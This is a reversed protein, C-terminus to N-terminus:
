FKQDQNKCLLSCFHKLKIIAREKLTEKADLLSTRFGLKEFFKKKFILREKDDKNLGIM